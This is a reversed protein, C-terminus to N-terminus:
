RMKELVEVMANAIMYGFVTLSNTKSVDPAYRDMFATCDRYAPDNAAAPDDGEWSYGASLIGEANQLGAPQMVAAVSESM